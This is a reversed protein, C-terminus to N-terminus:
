EDKIMKVAIVFCSTQPFKGVMPVLNHGICGNRHRNAKNKYRGMSTTDWGVWACADVGM